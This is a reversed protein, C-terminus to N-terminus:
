KIEKMCDIELVGRQLCMNLELENIAYEKSNELAACESETKGSDKCHRLLIKKTRAHMDEWRVQEILGDIDENMEQKRFYIDVLVFVGIFISIVIIDKTLSFKKLSEFM